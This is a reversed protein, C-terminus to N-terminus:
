EGGIELTLTTSTGTGTCAAQFRVSYWGELDEMQFATNASAALTTPDGNATRIYSNAVPSTWDTGTSFWTHWIGDEEVQFQIEFQDLANSGTNILGVGLREIRQGLKQILITTLSDTVTTSFSM